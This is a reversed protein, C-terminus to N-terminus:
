LHLEGKTSVRKDPSVGPGARRVRVHGTLTLTRVPLVLAGGLGAQM